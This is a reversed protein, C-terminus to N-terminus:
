SSKVFLLKFDTKSVHPAPSSKNYGCIHQERESQTEKATIREDNNPQSCQCSSIWRNATQNFLHSCLPSGTQSLHCTSSRQIRGIMSFGSHWVAAQPDPSESLRKEEVSDENIFRFMVALLTDTCSALCRPVGVWSVSLLLPCHLRPKLMFSM